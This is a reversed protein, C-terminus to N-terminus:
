ELEKNEKKHNNLNNGEQLDGADAVGKV